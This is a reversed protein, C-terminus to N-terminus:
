FMVVCRRLASLMKSGKESDIEIGIESVIEIGVKIGIESRVTGLVKWLVQTKAFDFLKFALVLPL